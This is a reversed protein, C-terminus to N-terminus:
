WKPRGTGAQVNVPQDTEFADAMRSVQDEPLGLVVAETRWSSTAREMDPIATRAQAESLRFYRCVPLATEISASTDDLDIATSLRAPRDLNPNLIM